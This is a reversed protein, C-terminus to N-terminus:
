LNVSVKVQFDLSDGCTAYSQLGRQFSCHDRASRCSLSMLEFFCVVRCFSVAMSIKLQVNGLGIHKFSYNLEATTPGANILEIALWTSTFTRHQACSFIVHMLSYYIFYMCAQASGCTHTWINDWLLIAFTPWRLHPVIFVRRIVLLCNQLSKGTAHERRLVM